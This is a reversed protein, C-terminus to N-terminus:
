AREYLRRNDNHLRPKFTHRLIFRGDFALIILPRRMSPLRARGIKGFFEVWQEAETM